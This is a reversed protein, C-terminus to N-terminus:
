FVDVEDREQCAELFVTGASYGLWAWLSSEMDWYVEWEIEIRWDGIGGLLGFFGM